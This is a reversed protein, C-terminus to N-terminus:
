ADSVPKVIESYKLAKVHLTILLFGGITFLIGNSQLKELIFLLLLFNKSIKKEEISMKVNIVGKVDHGNINVNDVIDHLIQTVLEEVDYKASSLPTKKGKRYLLYRMLFTMMTLRVTILRNVYLSIRISLFLCLMSKMITSSLVLIMLMTM